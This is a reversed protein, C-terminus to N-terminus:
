PEEEEMETYTLNQFLQEDDHFKRSHEDRELRSRCEVCVKTFPLVMLRGQPIQNGCEECLGYTEEQIRQLASDIEKLKFKERNNLLLSIERDRDNSAQDNVDSTEMAASENDSPSTRAIEAIVQDRMQLLLEKSNVPKGGVSKAAAKTAEPKAKAPETRKEPQKAAPKSAPKLAPKTAHKVAQRPAPKAAPKTVPRPAAKRVTKAGTAKQAKVKKSPAKAAVKRTVKALVKKLIGM